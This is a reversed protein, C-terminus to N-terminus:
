RGIRRRVADPSPLRTSNEYWRKPSMHMDITISDSLTRDLGPLDGCDWLGLNANALLGSCQLREWDTVLFQALYSTVDLSKMDRFAVKSLYPQM